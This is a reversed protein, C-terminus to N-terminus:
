RVIEKMDKVARELGLFVARAIIAHGINYEEILPCKQKLVSTNEYHLGHGAAIFLGCSYTYEAAQVIKDLEREQDVRTLSQAYTGTHIEIVDAGIDQSAQIQDLDPEIFMSVHIGVERLPKIFKRLHTQDHIVNLGGETTLEQRREPVLTVIAPRVNLAITRIEERAAMELNLPINLVKKIHFIDNDQIHRRDERLHCVISSAGLNEIIKAAEVPDPYRTKRVERLTAIHDINVGLKAM